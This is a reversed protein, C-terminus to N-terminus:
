RVLDFHNALFKPRHNEVFQRLRTDAALQEEVQGSASIAFCSAGTSYSSVAVFVTPSKGFTQKLEERLGFRASPMLVNARITPSSCWRCMSTPWTAVRTM